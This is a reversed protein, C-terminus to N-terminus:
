IGFATPFSVTGVTLKVLAFSDDEDLTNGEAKLPAIIFCISLFGRHNFSM